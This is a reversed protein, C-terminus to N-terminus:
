RAILYLDSVSGIGPGYHLAAITVHVPIGSPVYSTLDIENPGHSSSRSGVKAVAQGDYRIEDMGGSVALRHIQHGSRFELLLFQTARWQDTGAANGALFLKQGPYVTVYGSFAPTVYSPTKEFITQVELRTAKQSGSMPMSTSSFVKVVTPPYAPTPYAPVPYAPQQIPAPSTHGQREAFWASQFNNPLTALGGMATHKEGGQFVYGTFRQAVGGVECNFEIRGDGSVRGTLPVDNAQINLPHMMGDLQDGKELLILKYIWGNANLKWEGSLAFPSAGAVVPLSLLLTLLCCIRLFRM